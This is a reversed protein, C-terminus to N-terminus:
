LELRAPAIGGRSGVNATGVRGVAIRYLSEVQQMEEQVSAAPATGERLRRLLEPDEVLRSIKARLDVADGREFLLGNVGDSVISETAANRSCLVPTGAAFSEHAVFSFTEYCLTPIIVADLESMTQLVQEHPIEGAFHIRPDNGARSRLQRVYRPSHNTTGYIYLQVDRNCGSLQRVADVAVHVGKLHAVAGFYGLRLVGAECRSTVSQNTAVVLGHPVHHFKEEAVGETAAMFLVHRSPSIIADAGRLVDNLFQHRARCAEVCHEIHRNVLPARHAARWLLEAVPRAYKAPLSFRRSEESLCRVCDVGYDSHECLSDNSRVRHLRPCFFWYDVLSIAVPIGMDQMATAASATILYGSVLHLLDPKFERAIERVAGDIFRNKYTWGLRKTRCENPLRVTDIVLGEATHTSREGHPTFLNERDTCVVRVAHGQARLRTAINKVHMEAGGISTLPNHPVAILVRLRDREATSSTPLTSAAQASPGLDVHYAGRREARHTRWLRPLAIAIRAQSAIIDAALHLRGFISRASDPAESWLRVSITAFECRVYGYLNRAFTFHPNKLSCIYQNRVYYRRVSGRLDTAGRKSFHRVVSSKLVAPYLGHYLARECLDTEEGYLFYGPDFGGVREITRRPLLMAAGIVNRVAVLDEIWKAPIDANEIRMSELIREVFQDVQGGDYEIQLSSLIGVSPIEEAASVLPQLWDATVVIDQNLLVIHEARAKYAMEIGRNCAAGYGINSELRIVEVSPFERRVIDETGDDSANDIV